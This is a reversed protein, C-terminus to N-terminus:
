RDTWPPQQDGPQNGPGAQPPRPPEQPSDVPPQPAGPEPTGPGTQPPQNGPNPHTDVPPQESEGPKTEPADLPAEWVEPNEPRAREPVEIPPINSVPRSPDALWVDRKPAKKVEAFIEALQAQDLTEKELLEHALRDLIDRNENLARYADAHAADVLARIELDIQRYTEDSAHAEAGPGRGAFPESSVDGIKVMGVSQTMGYQTVMKKATSTAKEIDNSAGTTPDHFVIEEAVRGGMAYALQDLLENRTTSYKDESPLVMTYGLARGRPLITVKTVPDTHNMAAAVLAHGGEHYATVLREKDNMLRTRKQPGAIVRDIAEDLIRNDIQTRGSRATLLAAENLVNALDAGSFGPTRKAIQALDVEPALPKNRAHVGLIHQRGKMDPVEVNVQRDFRGPRLLAPDLVDPRNTAAILIVNTTADFGDMEVLLQNLTQEREDNGGGMGAGRQRGVADIEDIFIIAPSNNKAQEFLDRVRSAGVGVYMEVFDSGSISFFPVGAEGAVARALLTKGTGPPGYLMVGKPIKAGLDTFKKPEALFEKIEQLEELAEDVGAVDKFTVDPHEKNVLKAKSKGFNMIGKAGGSMQSLLFWFIALIIVFPIVNLLLSTLFSRKPVEDTYGKKIDADNIAKIVQDGRPEVYFFQVRKGYNRDDVKYDETLVMDVRQDGDVVKIQEVTKGNLLELGQKTDIRQYGGGSLWLMGISVIVIALVIWVIPGRTLKKVGFKNSDKDDSGKPDRRKLDNNKDTM